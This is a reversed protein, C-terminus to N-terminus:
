RTSSRAHVEQLMHWLPNQETCGTRTAMGISYGDRDELLKTKADIGKDFGPWKRSEHAGPTTVYGDNPVVCM